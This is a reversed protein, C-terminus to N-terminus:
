FYKKIIQHCVFRIYLDFQHLILDEKYVSDDVRKVSAYYELENRVYNFSSDYVESRSLITEGTEVDVLLLSVGFIPPFYSNYETITGVIVSEVNFFAGVRFAEEMINSSNLTINNEYLYQMVSSPHIINVERFRALESSFIDTADQIDGEGEALDLFPIIAISRIDNKYIIREESMLPQYQYACSLPISALTILLFLLVKRKM